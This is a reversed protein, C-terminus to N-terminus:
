WYINQVQRSTRQRCVDPVLDVFADSTREMCIWVCGFYCYFIGLEVTTLRFYNLIVYVLVALRVAIIEKTKFHLFHLTVPKKKQWKNMFCLGLMTAQLRTRWKESKTHPECLSCHCFKGFYKSTPWIRQYDSCQSFKSAWYIKLKDVWM